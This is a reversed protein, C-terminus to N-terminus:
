WQRARSKVLKFSEYYPPHKHYGKVVSYDYLQKISSYSMNALLKDLEDYELMLRLARTTMTHSPENIALSAVGTADKIEHHNLRMEISPDDGVYHAYSVFYVNNHINEDSLYNIIKNEHTGTITCDDIFLLTKNEVFSHNIYISDAALLKEREAKPLDAYNNNYTMNRHIISWEVPPNDNEEQYENIASMFHKALMSSAIPVTTCPAPIIVCQETLANAHDTIFGKALEEGILKACADSGFKMNSYQVPDFLLKSFDDGFEHLSYRTPEPLTEIKLLTM